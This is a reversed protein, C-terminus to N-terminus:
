SLFAKRRERNISARMERGQATSISAVIQPAIRDFGTFLQEHLTLLSDISEPMGIDPGMKANLHRWLGQLLEGRTPFHRYVTMETVGARKAVAKYTIEDAGGAEELLDAAASQIRDRTLEAQAQRLNSRYGNKRSLSKM